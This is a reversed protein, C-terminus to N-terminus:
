CKTNEIVSYNYLFKPLWFKWWKRNTNVINITLVHCSPFKSSVKFAIKENPKIHTSIM